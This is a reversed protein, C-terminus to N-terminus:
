LEIKQIDKFEIEGKSNIFIPRSRRTMHRVKNRLDDLQYHNNLPHNPYTALIRFLFANAVENINNDKKRYGFLNSVNDDLLSRGIDEIIKSDRTSSTSAEIPIVRMGEPYWCMIKMEQKLATRIEDLVYNSTLSTGTVILLLCRCQAIKERGEEIIQEDPRKKQWDEKEKFTWVDLGLNELINHLESAEAKNEENYSLFFDHKFGKEELGTENGFKSALFLNHLKSEPSFSIQSAEYMKKVSEENLFMENLIIGLNSLFREMQPHQSKGSEIFIEIARETLEKAKLHEGINQFTQAIDACDAAYRDHGIRIPNLHKLAEEAADYAKHLHGLVAMGGARSIIRPFVHTMGPERLLISEDHKKSEEFYDEAKIIQGQEMLVLGLDLNSAALDNLNEISDEIEYKKEDLDLERKAYGKAKDHCKLRRQIQVLRSLISSEIDVDEPTLKDLAALFCKEAGDSDGAEELRVCPGIVTFKKNWKKTKILYDRGEKVSIQPINKISSLLEVSKEALELSEDAKGIMALARAYLSLRMGYLPNTEGLTNRTLELLDELESICEEYRGLDYLAYAISVWSQQYDHSSTGLVQLRIKEARRFWKLASTFRCLKSNVLGLEHCEEGVSEHVPGYIKEDVELANLIYKEADEYSNKRTCAIGLEWYATGVEPHFDGYLIKKFRLAKKLIEFAEEHNGQRSCISGLDSLFPVCQKSNEGFVKTCESVLKREIEEAERYKAQAAKERGEKEDKEAETVLGWAHEHKAKWELIRGIM